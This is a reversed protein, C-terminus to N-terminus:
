PKVRGRSEFVILSKIDAHNLFATSLFVGRNLYTVCSLFLTLSKFKHTITITILM